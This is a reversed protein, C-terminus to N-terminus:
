EEGEYEDHKAQEYARVSMGICSAILSGTAGICTEAIATYEWGLACGVVGVFTAIAPIIYIAIHKLLDYVDDPLLYSM